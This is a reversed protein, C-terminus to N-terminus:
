EDWYGEKENIKKKKQPQSQQKPSPVNPVSPVGAEIVQEMQSEPTGLTYGSENKPKPVNPVSPEFDNPTGLTGLGTKPTQTCQEGSPDSESYAKPDPTGLTGLTGLAKQSDGVASFIFVFFRKKQGGIRMQRDARGEEDSEGLLGQAQLAKILENKNVGDCFEKNFISPPVLLAETNGEIDLRRYALLQRTKQGNNDPLTFVRDGLENSVLLHEIKEIARKIEVSGDGGRSKVWDKFCLSVAWDIQEAPFPLLGYGHAIGLAVQVLAFRKAVRGIASDSMGESLQAAILHTQKAWSGVPKPDTADTVLRGLFADMATGHNAKVAAELGNVFQVADAAGHINEFCGHESGEPIAPVDPSRVEQGGKQTQGAQAMYDGLGIEGSSLFLLQWTKGKRNTLDKKMRAKGQGNALMYAIAGVDKPDAQGIEDLPLCLHNFATATSELGNTTTRWHPIDKLGLVSAAVSLITTKGQSTAGVLHFGGSEINLLPLLPAAFAVGLALILRSNGGCRAAVVKKWDDLTGAVETLSEPSVEVDRFKLTEDGYTKHPLVFSGKVWGSSDTVTYTDEVKIGLGQLYQFLHNKQKRDFWYGRSLLGRCIEGGDGALEARPMTWRRLGSRAGFELLIAAGDQDPNDIYAIAELHYGIPVRSPSFSGDENQKSTVLVLGDGPTSEYHTRDTSEQGEVTRNKKRWEVLVSRVRSIPVISPKDKALALMTALDDGLIPPECLQCFTALVSESSGSYEDSVESLAVELGALEKAIAEAAAKVGSGKVGDRVREQQKPTLFSVLSIQEKKNGAIVGDHEIAIEMFEDWTINEIKTEAGIEDIDGDAETLQGWWTVLPERGWDALLKQVKQYTQMVAPVAVAGGDAVLLLPLEPFRDLAAKLTKESACFQAGSAGIALANLRRSAAYPKVGTGETLAIATPPAEPFWHAIPMEGTEPLRNKGTTEWRYRGGGSGKRCRVQGGVMLGDIDRIPIVYGRNESFPTLAKIDAETLERRTLDVLDGDRLQHNKIKYQYDRDREEKSPSAALDEAEKAEREAKKEAWIAKSAARDQENGVPAFMGWQGGKKELGRWKWGNPTQHSGTANMCLVLDGDTERCRGDGCGCIQCPNSTKCPLFSM